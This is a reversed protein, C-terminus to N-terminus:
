FAKKLVKAYKLSEAEKVVKLRKLILSSEM